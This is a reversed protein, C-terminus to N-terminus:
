HEITVNPAAYTDALSDRIYATDKPFAAIAFYLKFWASDKQYM